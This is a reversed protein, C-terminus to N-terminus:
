TPSFGHMNIENYLLLVCLVGDIENSFALSCTVTSPQKRPIFRARDRLNVSSSM